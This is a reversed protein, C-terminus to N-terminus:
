PREAVQANIPNPCELVWCSSSYSPKEGKMEKKKNKFSAPFFTFIPSIM